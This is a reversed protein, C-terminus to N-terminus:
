HFVACNVVKGLWFFADVQEYLAFNGFCCAFASAFGVIKEEWEFICRAVLANVALFEASELLFFMALDGRSLYLPNKM